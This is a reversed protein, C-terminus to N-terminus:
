NTKAGIGPLAQASATINIVRKPAPRPADEAIVITENKYNMVADRRRCADPFLAPNNHVGVHSFLYHQKIAEESQGDFSAGCDACPDTAQGLSVERTDFDAGWHSDAHSTRQENTMARILVLCEPCRGAALEKYDQDIQEQSHM